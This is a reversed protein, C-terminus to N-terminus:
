TITSPGWGRCPWAAARAGQRRFRAVAEIAYGSRNITAPSRRSGNLRKLVGCNSRGPSIMVKPWASSPRQRRRGVDDLDKVSSRGNSGRTHSSPSRNSSEERPVAVRKRQQNGVRRLGFVGVPGQLDRKRQELTSGAARDFAQRAPRVGNVRDPARDGFWDYSSIRIEAAWALTSTAAGHGEGARRHDRPEPSPSLRRDPAGALARTGM